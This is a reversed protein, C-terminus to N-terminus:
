KRTRSKERWWQCSGSVNAYKMSDGAFSSTNEDDSESSSSSSESLSQIFEDEEEIQNQQFSNRTLTGFSRGVKHSGSSVPSRISPSIGNGYSDDEEIMPSLSIERRLHRRSPKNKRCKGFNQYGMDQADNIQAAQDHPSLGHFSEGFDSAPPMRKKMKKFIKQQQYIAMKDGGSAQEYLQIISGLGNEPIIDLIISLFRIVSGQTTDTCWCNALAFLSERFDFITMKGNRSHKEFDKKIEPQASEFSVDPKLISYVRILFAGYAVPKFNGDSDICSSLRTWIAEFLGNVAADNTFLIERRSWEEETYLQKNGEVWPFLFSPSLRQDIKGAIQIVESTVLQMKQFVKSRDAQPLAAIGATLKKWLTKVKMVFGHNQLSHRDQFVYPIARCVCTGLSLLRQLELMQEKSPEASLDVNKIVEQKADRREMGVEIRSKRKSEQQQHSADASVPGSDVHVQQARQGPLPSLNLNGSGSFPEIPSAKSLMEPQLSDTITDRKTSRERVTQPKSKKHRGDRSKPTRAQPRKGERSNPTKLTKEVRWKQSDMTNPSVSTLRPSVLPKLSELSARLSAEQLDDFAHEEQEDWGTTYGASPPRPNTRKGGTKNVRKSENERAKLEHSMIKRLSVKNPIPPAIIKETSAPATQSVRNDTPRLVNANGPAFSRSLTNAEPQSTSKTVIAASVGTVTNNTSPVDEDKSLDFIIETGENTPSVCVVEFANKNKLPPSLSDCHSDKAVFVDVNKDVKTEDACFFANFFSHNELVTESTEQQMVSSQGLEKEASSSCMKEVEEQFIKNIPFSSIHAKTPTSKSNETRLDELLRVIKKHGMPNEWKRPTSYEEKQTNSAETIESYEHLLKISASVKPQMSANVAYQKTTRKDLLSTGGYQRDLDYAKLCRPSNNVIERVRTKQNECGSFNLTAVYPLITEEKMIAEKDKKRKERIEFTEFYERERDALKGLNLMCSGGLNVFADYIKPGVELITASASLVEFDWKWKSRVRDSSGFARYLEVLASTCIFSGVSYEFVVTKSKRDKQGVTGQQIIYACEYFDGRKVIKGGRPVTLVRLRNSFQYLKPVPVSRFIEMERLRKYAWHNFKTKGKGKVVIPSSPPKLTVPIASSDRIKVFASANIRLLESVFSAKATGYRFKLSHLCSEGFFDGSQYHFMGFEKETKSKLDLQKTIWDLKQKVAISGSLVVFIEDAYDGDDYLIEQRALSGLVGCVGLARAQSPNFESCYTKYFDTAQILVTILRIDEEVRNEPKTELIKRCKNALKQRYQKYTVGSEEVYRLFPVKALAITTSLHTRDRNFFFDYDSSILPIVDPLIMGSMSMRRLIKRKNRPWATKDLKQEEEKLRRENLMKDKKERLKHVDSKPIIEKFHARTLTYVVAPNNLECCARCTATRYEGDGLLGFDGIVGKNELRDLQEERGRRYIYVIVTGSVLVFMEDSEDGAHCLVEDDAYVRINMVDLLSGKIQDNLCEFIPIDDFISLGIMRKRNSLLKRVSPKVHLSYIKQFVDRKIFSLLVDSTAIAHATRKCATLMAIEGLINWDHLVTLQEIDNDKNINLADQDDSDSDEKDVFIGVKGRQIIYLCDGDDGQQIITEGSKFTKEDMSWIIKSLFDHDVNNLVHHLLKSQILSKRLKRNKEKLQLQMNGWMENGISMRRQRARMYSQRKMRKNQKEQDCAGDRLTVNLEVGEKQSAAKVVAFISTLSNGKTKGFGFMIGYDFTEVGLIRNIKRNSTRFVSVFRGDVGTPSSPHPILHTKTPKKKCPGGMKTVTNNIRYVYM